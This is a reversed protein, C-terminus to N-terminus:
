GWASLEALLRATAAHAVGVADRFEGRSEDVLPPDINTDIAREAEALLSLLLRLHDSTM